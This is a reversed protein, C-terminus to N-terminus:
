FESWVRMKNWMEREKGLPDEIVEISTNFVITERKEISYQPWNFVGKLNPNGTKAFSTWYDMMKESLSVTEETRKPFVWLHDDMFTHFVFAIELAHLAGYKGGEFPTKWTFLYMYTDKQHKSQAEAFKISPIRFRSDTMYM